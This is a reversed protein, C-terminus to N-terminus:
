EEELEREKEQEKQKMKKLKKKLLKKNQSKLGRSLKSNIYTRFQEVFIRELRMNVMNNWSNQQFSLHHNVPMTQPARQMQAEACFKKAIESASLKKPM